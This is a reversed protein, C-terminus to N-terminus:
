FFELYESRPKEELLKMEMIILSFLTTLHKQIFIIEKKMNM